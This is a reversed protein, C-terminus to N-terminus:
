GAPEFGAVGVVGATPLDRVAPKETNSSKQGRNYHTGKQLAFGFLSLGSQPNDKNKLSSESKGCCFRIWSGKGFALSSGLISPEKKEM